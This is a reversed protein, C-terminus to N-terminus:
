TALVQEKSMKTADCEQVLKNMRLKKVKTTKVDEMLLHKVKKLIVFFKKM